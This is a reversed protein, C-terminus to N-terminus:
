GSGLLLTVGVGIAASLGAVLAYLGIQYRRAVVVAVSRRLASASRDRRLSPPDAREPVGPVAHEEDEIRERLSAIQRDLWDDADGARSAQEPSM